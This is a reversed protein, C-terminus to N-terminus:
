KSSNILASASSIILDNTLWSVRSRGSVHASASTDGGARKQRTTRGALSNRELQLLSSVNLGLLGHSYCILPTMRPRSVDRYGTNKPGFGQGSWAARKFPGM